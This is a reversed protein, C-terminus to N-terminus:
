MRYLKEYVSYSSDVKDGAANGAGAKFHECYNIKWNAQNYAPFFIDGECQHAVVTVQLFDVFPLAERYVEGGGIIWVTNTKAAKVADMLSHVVAVRPDDVQFAPNRTLIITQRAEEPPLGKDFPRFKEPISIYTKRGVILSNEGNQRTLTRFRKMDSPVLGRWPMDGDKGIITRGNPAAFASCAYMMRIIKGNLM